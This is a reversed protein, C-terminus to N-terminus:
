HSRPPRGGPRPCASPHSGEAEVVKPDVAVVAVMLGVTAVAPAAAAVVAAARLLLLLLLLRRGAELAVPLDLAGLLNAGDQNKYTYSKHRCTKVRGKGTLAEELEAELSAGGGGSVMGAPPDPEWCCVDAPLTVPSGGAAVAVEVADGDLVGDATASSTGSAGAGVM